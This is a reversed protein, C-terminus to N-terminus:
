KAPLVALLGIIDFIRRRPEPAAASGGCSAEGLDAGTPFLDRNRVSTPFPWSGDPTRGRKVPRAVAAVFSGM